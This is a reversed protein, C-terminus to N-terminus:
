GGRGVQVLRERQARVSFRIGVERATWSGLVWRIQRRLQVTALELEGTLHRGWRAASSTRCPTRQRSVGPTPAVPSLTIPCCM